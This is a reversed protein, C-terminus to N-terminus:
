PIYEANWIHKRLELMDEPNPRDGGGIIRIMRLKKGRSARAAVMGVISKIDFAEEDSCPVIILEELKPCIVAESSGTGLNLSHIFIHLCEHGFFTLTCLAKMSLLARYLSSSSLQDGYNVKLRKTRLTDLQTLSKLMWDIQDAMPITTVGGNPGSFKMHLAYGGLYLQIATFNSLNKLHDLSRPLHERILSGCLDVRTTLKVGVPILLHDLLASSPNQGEICM